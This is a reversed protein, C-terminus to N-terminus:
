VSLRGQGGLPSELREGKETGDWTGSGPPWAAAKPGARARLTQAPHVPGLQHSASIVGTPSPWAGPLHHGKCQVGPGSPYNKPLPSSSSSPHHLTTPLSALPHTSGCQPPAQIDHPWHQLHTPVWPKLTALDMQKNWVHKHCALCQGLCM